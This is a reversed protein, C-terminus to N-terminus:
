KQTWRKGPFYGAAASGGRSVFGLELFGTALGVGAGTVTLSISIM